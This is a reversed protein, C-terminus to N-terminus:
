EKVSGDPFLNGVPLISTERVMQWARRRFDPFNLVTPKSNKRQRVVEDNVLTLMNTATPIIIQAM